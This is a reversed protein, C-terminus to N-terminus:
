EHVTEPMTEPMVLVQEPRKRYHLELKRLSLVIWYLGVFLQLTSYLAITRALVLGMGFSLSAYGLISFLVLAIGLAMESTIYKLM